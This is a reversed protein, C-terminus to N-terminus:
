VHRLRHWAYTLGAGYFLLGTVLHVLAIGMADGAQSAYIYAIVAFVNVLTSNILLFRVAGMAYFLTRLWSCALTFAAATLIAYAVPVAPEFESGVLIRIFPGVLPLALLVLVALPVSIGLAFRKITRRL